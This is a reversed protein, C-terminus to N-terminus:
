AAPVLKFSIQRKVIAEAEEETANVVIFSAIKRGNPGFVNATYNTPGKVKVQRTRSGLALADEQMQGLGGRSYAAADNIDSM